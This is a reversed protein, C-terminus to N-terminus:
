LESHRQGLEGGDLLLSQRRQTTHYAHAGRLTAGRRVVDETAKPGWNPALELSTTIGPGLKIGMTEQRHSPRFVHVSSCDGARVVEVPCQKEVENM